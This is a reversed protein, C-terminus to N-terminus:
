DDFGSEIDFGPFGLQLSILKGGLADVKSGLGETTRHLCVRYVLNKALALPLFRANKDNGLLPSPPRANVAEEPVLAIRNVRMVLAEREIGACSIDLDVVSHVLSVSARKYM